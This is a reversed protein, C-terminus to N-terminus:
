RRGCTGRPLLGAACLEPRPASIAFASRLDRTFWVHLMESSGQTLRSGAPCKGSPPPKLGRKKGQKCVVHSHWRLIPGAPTPGVEGDRTSWMAGVLVLPRGPANAYILAKPRTFDFISRGRPEEHREAHFFFVSRDGPKRPRSRTDYGVRTAKRVDRWGERKSAAALRELVLAARRRERPTALWVSPYQPLHDILGHRATPPLEGDSARPLKCVLAPPVATSAEGATGLLAAALVCASVLRKMTAVLRAWLNELMRWVIPDSTVARTLHFAGAAFVRAGARTEYYTMQASLGRGFLNPIEAVVQLDAPSEPTVQDIEVGGRAFGSGARLRTGSFIWSAAPTKRVVWAGRPSRQHAVYQVGVLAAEPRGLDRWRDSKTITAGTREVRWFFNNASLFMLNGGLDRYGEVLDYERTTVYEHHGAFVILDYARALAQSSVVQELDWQSLYDAKRRTWQLWNLFGVHYRFGYPVGRNLHARGLRVSNVRKGAYWSDAHGDGDDDRFNYAQWTLTPLVVAVRQEGIQRPGVIFPAFGLRGNLTELRAFYLGSKWDGIDLAEIRRGTTTGISRKTSVPVGNMVTDSLTAVREPGAQFLQVTVHRSRDSVVLRAQEGPRYSEREFAAEVAPVLAADVPARGDLPREAPMFSKGPLMAVALGTALGVVITRNAMDRM